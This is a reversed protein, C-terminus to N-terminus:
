GRKASRAKGVIYGVLSLGLGLGVVLVILGDFASVVGSAETLVAPITMTTSIM